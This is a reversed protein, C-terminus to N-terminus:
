AKDSRFRCTGHHFAVREVPDVATFLIAAHASPSRSSASVGPRPDHRSLSPSELAALCAGSRVICGTTRGGNGHVIRTHTWVRRFPLSRLRYNAPLPPLAHPLGNTYLLYRNRRDIQALAQLLEWSYQETGTRQTVGLRSADFGIRLTKTM